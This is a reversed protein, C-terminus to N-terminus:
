LVHRLEVRNGDGAIMHLLGARSGVDLQGVSKGVTKFVETGAYICAHVYIRECRTQREEPANRHVVKHFDGLHTSGTHKPRADHLLEIGLVGLRKRETRVALSGSPREGLLIREVVNATGAYLSHACNESMGLRQMGVSEVLSDGKRGVEGCTDRTVCLNVNLLLCINGLLNVRPATGVIHLRKGVLNCALSPIM